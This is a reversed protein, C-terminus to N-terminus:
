PQRRAARGLHDGQGAPHDDHLGRAGRDRAFAVSARALAYTIGRRRFGKRTLLCTVAWVGGDSKDEERGTWPTRTLLLRPNSTRPEVACWGVPEGDLYAVLGSTSRAGPEGCITLRDPAVPDTRGPTM